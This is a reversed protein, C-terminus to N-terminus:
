GKDMTRTLLITGTSRLETLGRLLYAIGEEAQGQDVLSWGRLALSWGLPEAFKQETSLALLEAAHRRPLGAFHDLYIAHMLVRTLVFANGSRRALSLAEDV